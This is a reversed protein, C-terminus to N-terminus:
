QETSDEVPKGFITCASLIAADRRASIAAIRSDFFAREDAMEAEFNQEIETMRAEFIGDFIQQISQM